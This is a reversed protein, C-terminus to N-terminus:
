SRTYVMLGAGSVMLAAAVLGAQWIEIGTAALTAPTSGAAQPTAVAPAVAVAAMAAPVAASPAAALSAAGQAPVEPEARVLVVGLVTTETGTDAAQTPVPDPTPTTAAPCGDFALEHTLVTEGEAFQVGKGTRGTVLVRTGDAVDVVGTVDVDGVSYTVGLAEPVVVASAEDSVGAACSSQVATAPEWRVVFLAEGICTDPDGPAEGPTCGAALPQEDSVVMGVSTDTPTETANAVAATAAVSSLALGLVLATCAILSRVLVAAGPLRSSTM